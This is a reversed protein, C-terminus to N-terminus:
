LELSTLRAEKRSAHKSGEPSALMVSLVSGPGWVELDGDAGFRRSSPKRLGPLDWLNSEAEGEPDVM